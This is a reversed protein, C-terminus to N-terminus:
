ILMSHVSSSCIIYGFAQGSLTQEHGMAGMEKRKTGSVGNALGADIFGVVAPAKEFVQHSAGRNADNGNRQRHRQRNGGPNRRLIAQIGSDYGTKQNGQKAAAAVANGSWRGSKDHNEIRDGLAIAQTAQQQSRQHGTHQQHNHRHHAQAAKNLIDGFGDSQSEGTANGHHNGGQLYFVEEPEGNVSHWLMVPVLQRDQTLLQRRQISQTRQHRHNGQRHHQEPWPQSGRHRRM